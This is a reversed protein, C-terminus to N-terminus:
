ADARTLRPAQKEPEPVFHIVEAVQYDKVGQAHTFIVLEGLLGIAFVQLGLVVLLSALLLLPRDALAEDFFLREIVLWTVVLGGFLSTLVGVMGFFRLPRKTFRVLFFVTFIDIISRTYERPGYAGRFRDQAHQAVPVERVRFGNRDALMALFRHQDGYLTIEQLVRRKIARAGCGLDHFRLKTVWALLKHFTARRAREFWGGARPSRHGIAVDCEDLAKVLKGVESGQIQFYAPLTVITEGAAHEFGAMLATSEGFFRTLAVVTIPEGSGQLRALGASFAPQPGDVVFIFEYTVGLAAIGAKYEAYLEAADSFRSGVPVIVSVRPPSKLGNM